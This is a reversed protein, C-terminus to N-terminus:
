RSWYWLCAPVPLRSLFAFHRGQKRSRMVYIWALMIDWKYYDQLNVIQTDVSQLRISLWSPSQASSHSLSTLELPASHQCLVASLNWNLASVGYCTWTSWDAIWKKKKFRCTYTSSNRLMVATMTLSMWSFVPLRVCPSVATEDYVLSGTSSVWSWSGCFLFGGNRM